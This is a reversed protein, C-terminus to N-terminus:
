KKEGQIMHRIGEETCYPNEINLKQITSRNDIELTGFLKVHLAPKMLRLARSFLPLKFLYIKKDFADAIYKVLQTTSLSENDAVLFVSGQKHEIIKDLAYVLNGIYLFTKRNGIGSFPLIPLLQVINVLSRMNGPSDKGYVMPFRVISIVFNEDSLEQLKREAELKSKAYATKPNCPSDESVLELNDGYVAVSSLFVFQGVGSAKAKKALRLPYEVNIEYYKQYDHESPQHVLAACHLVTDVHYLDIEDLSKSQLSFETFAYKASFANIFSSGIYGSSGTVLIHM